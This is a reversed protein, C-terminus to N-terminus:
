HLTTMIQYSIVVEKSYLNIVIAVNIDTLHRSLTNVKVFYIWKCQMFRAKDKNYNGEINKSM